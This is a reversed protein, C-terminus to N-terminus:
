VKVYIDVHVWGLFMGRWPKTLSHLLVESVQTFSNNKLYPAYNIYSNMSTHEVSSM